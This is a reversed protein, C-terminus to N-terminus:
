LNKMRELCNKDRCFRCYSFRTEFQHIERKGAALLGSVSKIPTMLSSSNLSIDIKGPDLYSFLKQQATIHWGCYGPSYSLVYINEGSDGAIEKRFLEELQKVAIDAANSAASDLMSGLAFNNDIFLDEIRSSVEEGITLAFLALRDAHPYIDALLVDEANQGEGHFIPEFEESSVESVISVPKATDSLISMAEELIESIRSSIGRGEPVGQSLLVDDKSPLIDGTNLSITGTM